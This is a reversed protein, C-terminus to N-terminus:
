TSAGPTCTCCTTPRLGVMEGDEVAVLCGVPAAEDGIRRWNASAVSEPLRVGHFANFDTWLRRWQAEDAAVAARIILDPEPEM